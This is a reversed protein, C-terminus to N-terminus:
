SQAVVWSAVTPPVPADFWAVVRLDPDELYGPYLQWVRNEPGVLELGEAVWGRLVLPSICGIEPRSSRARWRTVVRLTLDARKKPNGESNGLQTIIGTAPDFIAMAKGQPDRIPVQAVENGLNGLAEALTLDPRVGGPCLKMFERQKEIVPRTFSSLSQGVPLGVTRYQGTYECIGALRHGGHLPNGSVWTLYLPGGCCGCVLVFRRASWAALLTWLSFHGGGNFMISWGTSRLVVGPIQVMDGADWVLGLLSTCHSALLNWEADLAKKNAERRKESAKKAVAVAELERQGFNALEEIPVELANALAPIRDGWVADEGKEWRALRAMGKDLNRYGMRSAVERRHLGVSSRARSLWEGLERRIITVAPQALREVEPDRQARKGPAVRKWSDAPEQLTRM